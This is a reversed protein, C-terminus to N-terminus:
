SLGLVVLWSILVLLGLTPGGYIFALIVFFWGTIAFLVVVMSLAVLLLPSFAILLIAAFIAAVLIGLVDM